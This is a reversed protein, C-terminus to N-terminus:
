SFLFGRVAAALVFNKLLFSKCPQFCPFIAISYVPVAELLKFVVLPVAIFDLFLWLIAATIMTITIVAMTTVVTTDGM